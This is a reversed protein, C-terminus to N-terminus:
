SGRTNQAGGYRAWCWLACLAAAPLSLGLIITQLITM